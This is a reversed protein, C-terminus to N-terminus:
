AVDGGAVAQSQSGTRRGPLRERRTRRASILGALGEPARVIVVMLALGGFILQWAGPLGFVHETIHTMLGGTVLLGGILAGLISTIGGLYAFAVIGLGIFLSFRAVSVTGFDYAYLTGAVGAIISGVAYAALKTRTVSLGAAAAARENSRVALMRLGLHRKRLSAVGICAV